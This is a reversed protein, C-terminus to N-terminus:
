LTFILSLELSSDMSTRWSFVLPLNELLVLPFLTLIMSRFFIVPPFESEEEEQFSSNNLRVELISM